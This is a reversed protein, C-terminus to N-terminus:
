QWGTFSELGTNTVSLFVLWLFEFNWHSCTGMASHATEWNGSGCNLLWNPCSYLKMSLGHVCVSCVKTFKHIREPSIKEMLIAVYVM